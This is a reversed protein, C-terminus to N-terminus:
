SACMPRGAPDHLAAAEGPSDSLRAVDIAALSARGNCAADCGSPVTAPFQVRDGEFRAALTCGNGLDVRLAAGSQRATGRAVCGQGDGYDIVVGVSLVGNGRATGRAICLRDTEAAYLGVPDSLAPDAVLGAASAAQELRAGASNAPADSAAATPAGARGCGGLLALLALAAAKM